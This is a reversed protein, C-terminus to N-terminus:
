MDGTMVSDIPRYHQLHYILPHPVARGSRPDEMPVGMGCGPGPIGRVSEGWSVLPDRGRRSAPVTRTGGLPDSHPTASARAAGWRVTHPATLPPPRPQYPCICPTSPSTM